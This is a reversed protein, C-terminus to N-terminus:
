LRAPPGLSAFVERSFATVETVLGDEVRLVAVACADFHPGPVVRAGDVPDREDFSGPMRHCHVLLERRHREVLAAYQEEDDM